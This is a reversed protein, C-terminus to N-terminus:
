RRVMRIETATAFREARTTGDPAFGYRTYFARARPNREFVWLSCSRDPELVADMLDRALGSGYWEARVYMAQLEREAVAPEDRPASYHTFGAIGAGSEAVLIRGSHNRAIREWNAARHELDFADLVHDPVLGRYAERWCAIHCAALAHAHAPGLPALRWSIGPGGPEDTNTSTQHEKRVAIRGRGPEQASGPRPRISSSHAEEASVPSGTILRPGGQGGEPLLHM